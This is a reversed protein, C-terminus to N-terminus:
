LHEGQLVQRQLRRQRGKYATDELKLGDIYFDFNQGNANWVPKDTGTNNDFLVADQLKVDVIQSPPRSSRARM